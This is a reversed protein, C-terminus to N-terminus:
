NWRTMTQPINQLTGGESLRRKLERLRDESSSEQGQEGPPLRPKNEGGGAEPGPQVAWNMLGTAAGLAALIGGGKLATDRSPLRDRISKKGPTEPETKAPEPTASKNAEAEKAKEDAAKKAADATSTDAQTTDKPKGSTDGTNGKPPQSGGAGGATQTNKPPQNGRGGQNQRGGRQGSQRRNQQGRQNPKPVPKAEPKPAPKANPDDVPTSSADLKANVDETADGTTGKQATTGPAPTAEPKPAPTPTPTPTPAPKPASVGPKGNSHPGSRAAEDFKGLIQDRFAKKHDPDTIINDHVEMAQRYQDRAWAIDEPTANADRLISVVKRADDFDADEPFDGAPKEPEAGYRTASVVRDSGILDGNMHEDAGAGRFDWQPMSNAPRSTYGPPKEADVEYGHEKFHEADLAKQAEEYSRMQSVDTYGYRTVKADEAFTGRDFGKKEAAGMSSQARQKAAIDKAIKEAYEADTLEPSPIDTTRGEALDEEALRELTEPTGDGRRAADAVEPHMSMRVAEDFYAGQPLGGEPWYMNFRAVADAKRKAAVPTDSKLRQVTAYALGRLQSIQKPTEKGTFPRAIWDEHKGSGDVTEYVVHHKAHKSNIWDRTNVSRDPAPLGPIPKVKPGLAPKVELANTGKGTGVDKTAEEESMGAQREIPEGTELDINSERTDLDWPPDGQTTGLENNPDFPRDSKKGKFGAPLNVQLGARTTDSPGEVMSLRPNGTWFRERVLNAIDDVSMDKLKGALQPSAGPHLARGLLYEAMQRPGVNPDSSLPSTVDSPSLLKQPGVEGKPIDKRNPKPQMMEWVRDLAGAATKPNELMQIIQLDLVQQESRLSNTARQNSFLPNPKRATPGKVSDTVEQVRKMIEALRKDDKANKADKIAEVLSDLDGFASEMAARHRAEYDDMDAEYKRGAFVAGNDYPGFTGEKPNPVLRVPMKRTTAAPAPPTDPLGNKRLLNKLVDDGLVSLDVENGGPLERIREELWMRAEEPSLEPQVATDVFTYNAPDDGGETEGALRMQQRRDFDSTGGPGRLKKEDLGEMPPMRKQDDMQVVFDGPPLREEQAVDVVADDDEAPKDRVVGDQQGKASSRDWSPVKGNETDAVDQLTKLRAADPAGGQLLNMIEGGMPSWGMGDTAGGKNNTNPYERAIAVAVTRKQESPLAKFAATLEKLGEADGEQVMQFLAETIGRARSVQNETYLTRGNDTAAIREGSNKDIKGRATKYTDSGAEPALNKDKQQPAKKQLFRDVILDFNSMVESSGDPMARTAPSKRPIKSAGPDKLRDSMPTLPVDKPPRYAM